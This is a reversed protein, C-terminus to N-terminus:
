RVAELARKNALAGYTNVGDPAGYAAKAKRKITRVCRGARRAAERLPILEIPTGSPPLATLGALEGLYANFQGAEFFYAGDVIIPRPFKPEHRM